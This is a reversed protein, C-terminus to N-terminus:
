CSCWDAHSASIEQKPIYPLPPLYQGSASITGVMTVLVGREASTVKGVIKRGKEAFVKPPVYVTTVSTEDFNFIDSATFPTKKLVSQLNSFFEQVNHKNFSTARGLSTAEPKISVM